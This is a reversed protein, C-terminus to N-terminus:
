LMKRCLALDQKTKLLSQQMRSECCVSFTQLTIPPQVVVVQDDTDLPKSSRIYVFASKLPTRQKEIGESYAHFVHQWSQYMYMLLLSPSAKQFKECGFVTAQTAGYLQQYYNVTVNENEGINGMMELIINKYSNKSLYSCNSLVANGVM